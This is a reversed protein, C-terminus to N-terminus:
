PPNRGRTLYYTYDILGAEVPQAVPLGYHVDCGRKRGVLNRTGAGVGHPRRVIRTGPKAHLDDIDSGSLCGQGHDHPRIHHVALADRMAPENEQEGVGGKSESAIRAVLARDRRLALDGEDLGGLQAVLQDRGCPFERAAATGPTVVDADGGIVQYDGLEAAM